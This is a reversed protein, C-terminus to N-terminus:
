EAREGRVLEKKGGVELNEGGGLAVVTGRGDERERRLWVNQVRFGSDQVGFGSGQVRFGSNKREGQVFEGRLEYYGV